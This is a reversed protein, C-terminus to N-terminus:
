VLTSQGPTILRTAPSTSLMPRPGDSKVLVLFIMFFQHFPELRSLPCSFYLPQAVSLTDVQLREGSGQWTSRCSCTRLWLSGGPIVM